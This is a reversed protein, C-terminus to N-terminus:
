GCGKKVCIHVLELGAECEYSVYVGCVQSLIHPQAVSTKKKVCIHVLELGAECEDSVYVGCVQSLIHPQVM